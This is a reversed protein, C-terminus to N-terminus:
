AARRAENVGWSVVESWSEAKLVVVMEAMAAVRLDELNLLWCAVVLPKGVVVAIGGGAAGLMPRLRLGAAAEEVPGDSGGVVGVLFRMVELGGNVGVGLAMPTM